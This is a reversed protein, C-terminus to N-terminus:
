RVTIDSFKGNNLEYFDLRICPPNNVPDKRWGQMNGGMARVVFFVNDRRSVSKPVMGFGEACNLAIKGNRKLDPSVWSTGGYNGFFLNKGDTAMTQVGYNIEYGLDIEVNGKDSLDLGLRKVCCFPHRKSGYKDVGVYLTDGLVVAGDLAEPFRAEGIQELRENWVRVLGPMGKNVRKADRVVFVGYIKGDAYAIDGLHNPADIHLLHKGNWGIKDIGLSHSLYVGEESCCAGQIHGSKILVDLEHPVTYVAKMQKWAAEVRKVSDRYLGSPIGHGLGPCDVMIADSGAPLSNYGAWVAAPPCLDDIFGVFWRTPIKVRAAFHACDFYPLIAMVNDYHKNGTFKEGLMPWGSQRGDDLVASLDTLAPEGIQASTLNKNLAALILGFAGGQSQGEYHFTKGDVPLKKALWDVARNIGLIAGYYFYDERRNFLDGEFYWGRGSKSGWERNFKAYKEDRDAKDVPAEYDVVNLYIGIHGRKRIYGWSGSGAGPVTMTAPFRGQSKPVAVQGRIRRGAPVTAFSVRYCDFEGDSAKDDREMKADIPVQAAFKAVASDWFADFDAPRASGPRIKEPEYGVAWKGSFWKGSATRGEVRLRLFGPRDLRGTVVLPNEKALDVSRVNALRRRGFNDLIVNAKVSAKEGAGNTVSVTFVAEEGVQYRCNPHNVKFDFGISSGIASTSFLAAFFAAAVSSRRM